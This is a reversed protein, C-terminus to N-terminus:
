KSMIAMTLLGDFDGPINFLGNESVLKYSPNPSYSLPMLNGNIVEFSGIIDEPDDKGNRKVRQDTIYVFGDSQIALAPIDQQTKLANLVIIKHFLTVFEPNYIINEHIIGKDSEKLFGLIAKINFENQSPDMMSLYIRETAGKKLPLSFLNM